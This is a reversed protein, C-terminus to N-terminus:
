FQQIATSVLQCSIDFVVISRIIACTVLQMKECLEIVGTITKTHDGPLTCIHQIGPLSYISVTNSSMGTLAVLNVSELHCVIDITGGDIM